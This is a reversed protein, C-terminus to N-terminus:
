RLLAGAVALGFLVMVALAVEGIASGALALVISVSLFFAVVLGLGVL